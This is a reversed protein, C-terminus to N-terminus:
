YLPTPLAGIGQLYGTITSWASTNVTNSGTNPVTALREADWAASAAYGYIRPAWALMFINALWEQVSGVSLSFTSRIYPSSAVMLWADFVDTERALTGPDPTGFGDGLPDIGNPTGNITLYHFDMAHGLEHQIVRGRLQSSGSDDNAAQAVSSAPLYLGDSINQSEARTGFSESLDESCLCVSVGRGGLQRRTAVPIADLAYRWALVKSSRTSDWAMEPSLYVPLGLETGYKAGLPMYDRVLVDGSFSSVYWGQRAVDWEYDITCVSGPEPNPEVIRAREV